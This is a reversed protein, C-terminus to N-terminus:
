PTKNYRTPWTCRYNFWMHHRAVYGVIHRIAAAREMFELNVRHQARTSTVTLITRRATLRIQIFEITPAAPPHEATLTTYM